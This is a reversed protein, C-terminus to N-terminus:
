AWTRRTGCSLEIPVGRRSCGERDRIMPGCRPRRPLHGRNATELQGRLARVEDALAEIDQRTAAVTDQEIDRIRALMWSALSATVVGLLAIGCLMLAAGVLRGTMTVPFHDGYGVTTMTTLAWWLADGYGSINADPADREADLAALAAVFLLLVSAGGVYTAVRGRLSVGARRNLIALLPILRLLRLRRLLPLALVVLDLLHSRVFRWRRRSLFLRAIYDVVFLAWTAWSLLDCVTHWEPSLELDLIPWAYPLLFVIAAVTLPWESRREWRERTLYRTHTRPGRFGQWWM